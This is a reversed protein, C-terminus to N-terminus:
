RAEAMLDAPKAASSKIGSMSAGPHAALRLVHAALRLAIAVITLTPNAQSSTAFVASSAIYLNDVEHVKCDADVVSTRPDDSAGRWRTPVPVRPPATRM